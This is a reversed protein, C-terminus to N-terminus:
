YKIRAEKNTARKHTYNISFRDHGIDAKAGVM